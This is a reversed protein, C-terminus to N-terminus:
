QGKTGTPEGKDTPLGKQVWDAGFNQAIHIVKVNKFGLRELEDVAPKVNPCRDWPCCGCYLIILRGKPETKVRGQLHHIGEPSSAMGMYEANPIHAQAYLIRPGVQLVLPHATSLLPVVSTPEVLRGPSIQTASQPWGLSSLLLISVLAKTRM